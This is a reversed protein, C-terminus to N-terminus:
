AASPRRAWLLVAVATAILGANIWPAAGTFADDGFRLAHGAVLVLLTGVTLYQLVRRTPADQDRWQAYITSAIIVGWFILVSPIGAVVQTIASIVFALPTGWVIGTWLNNLYDRHRRKALWINIGTVSVVTLALGLAIYLLKVGVGGFAGFHIRYVSFIAQRGPEGDSFGVTHLYEGDGKFVFQEAYILRDPYQTGVILHEEESEPHEVTLYIPVAGDPSRDIAQRLVSAIALPEGTPELDPHGGYIEEIVADRDGDYFAQGAVWSMISALGFFAGTVAIMLHFPSGWVSLRNHLDTQELRGNGKRRFHFADRFLNPHALFGSLILACLMVGLTSVVIMGWSSPLHLYLHLDTLLHTWPHAATDGLTGDANLVRADHDSMLVTRPMGPRPMLIYAHETAEQGEMFTQYATELDEPSVETFEPVQPTEWREFDQYLVALTGSLCVWYMLAGTLLGLWSHSALSNKVLAPSLKFAM